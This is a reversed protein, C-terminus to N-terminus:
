PRLFPWPRVPAGALSIPQGFMADVLAQKVFSEGLPAAAGEDVPYNGEEVIADVYSEDTRGFSPPNRPEFTPRFAPSDPLDNTERTNSTWATFHSQDFTGLAEATGSNTKSKGGEKDGGKRKGTGSSWSPRRRFM